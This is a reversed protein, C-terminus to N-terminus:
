YYIYGIEISVDTRCEDHKAFWLDTISLITLMLKDSIM